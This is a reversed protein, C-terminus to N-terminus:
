FLHCKACVQTHICSMMLHQWQTLVVFLPDAIDLLVYYYQPSIGLSTGAVLINTPIHGRRGQRPHRWHLTYLILLLHTTIPSWNRIWFCYGICDALLIHAESVAALWFGDPLAYCALWTDSLQSIAAHYSYRDSATHRADTAAVSSSRQPNPRPDSDQTREEVSSASRMISGIGM